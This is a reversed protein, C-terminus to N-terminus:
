HQPQTNSKARSAFMRNRIWPYSLSLGQRLALVFPSKGWLIRAAIEAMSYTKGVLVRQLDDVVEDKIKIDQEWVPQPALLPSPPIPALEVAMKVINVFAQAESSADALQQKAYWSLMSLRENRPLSSSM